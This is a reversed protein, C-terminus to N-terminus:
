CIKVSDRVDQVTSEANCRIGEYGSLTNVEVRGYM